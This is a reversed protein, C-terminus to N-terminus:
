NGRVINELEELTFTNRLHKTADAFYKADIENEIKSVVTNRIFDSQSLGRLRSYHKILMADRESVRISIM